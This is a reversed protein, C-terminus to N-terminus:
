EAKELFAAKELYSPPPVRAILGRKFPEPREKWPMLGNASGALLDAATMVARAQGPALGGFVYTWSKGASMALTCGRGCNGLCEVGKLVVDSRGLERLEDYFRAGARAKEPDEGPLLCTTCVHIVLDRM